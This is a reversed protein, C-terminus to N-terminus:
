PPRHRRALATVRAAIDDHSLGSLHVRHVAPLRTLEALRRRQAPHSGVEAARYTGILVVPTDLLNRALFEFLDWTNADAWHLDEIGVAVVGDAGLHGLMDLIPAFLSGPGHDDGARPGPSPDLWRALPALGESETLLDPSTRRVQRLLDALPALPIVDGGIPVCRGVYLRVGTRDAAEGILTSKGIGADGGVLLISPVGARGDAFAREFLALEETRGVFDPNQPRDPM